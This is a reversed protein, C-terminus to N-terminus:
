DVKVQSRERYASGFVGLGGVIGGSEEPHERYLYNYANDDIALLQVEYRGYFVMMASYFEIRFLEEERETDTRSSRTPARM